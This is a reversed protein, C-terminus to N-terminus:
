RVKPSGLRVIRETDDHLSPEHISGTFSHLDTLYPIGSYVVSGNDGNLETTRNSEEEV